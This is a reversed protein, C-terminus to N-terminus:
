FDGRGFSARFATASLHCRKAINGPLMFLKPHRSFAYVRYLSYQEANRESFRVENASIFFPAEKRFRTTKVEIFLDSGSEDFSRVDFGAGDGREVSVHEVRDVFKEQNLSILRSKEFEVVLEEGALGLARNRADEELYNRQIPTPITVSNERLDGYVESREPIKPDFLGLIDSVEPKEADREVVNEIVQFLGPREPVVEGIVAHLLDHQYNWRPKYGEIPPIGLSIMAASINCNKFELSGNSRNNLKPLLGRRVASKNLPIGLLEAELMDFYAEVTLTVERHSWAAPM